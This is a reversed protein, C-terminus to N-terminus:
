ENCIKILNILTKIGVRLKIVEGIKTFINEAEKLYFFSITM